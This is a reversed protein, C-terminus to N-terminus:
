ASEHNAAGTAHARGYRFPAGHQGREEVERDANEESGSAWRLAAEPRRPGSASAEVRNTLTWSRSALRRVQEIGVLRKKGSGGGFNHGNGGDVVNRERPLVRNGIRQPLGVGARYLAFVAPM